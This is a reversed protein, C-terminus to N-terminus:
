KRRAKDLLKRIFGRTDDASSLEPGGGREGEPPAPPTPLPVNLVPLRHM